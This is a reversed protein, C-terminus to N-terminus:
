EGVRYIEVNLVGRNDGHETDQLRLSVAEGSEGLPVCYERSLLAQGAAPRGSVLMNRGDAIGEKGDYIFVGFIWAEYPVGKRLSNSKFELDQNAPMVLGQFLDTGQRGRPGTCPQAATLSDAVRAAGEGSGRLPGFFTLGGAALAALLSLAVAAGLIRRARGTTARTKRLASPELEM